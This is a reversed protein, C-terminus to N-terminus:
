RRESHGVIVYTCGTEKLMEASIEGTHAGHTAEHVNQAGLAPRLGDTGGEALARGAEHLATFPPCILVETKVVGQLAPLLQEIFAATEVATKHMKWNGAILPIRMHM